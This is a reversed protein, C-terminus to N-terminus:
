ENALGAAGQKNSRRTLVVGAALQVASLRQGPDNITTALKMARAVDGRHAVQGTIQMLAFDRSGPPLAQAVRVAEDVEGPTGSWRTVTEQERSWQTLRADFEREFDIFTDRGYSTVQLADGWSFNAPPQARAVVGARTAFARAEAADGAQDSMRTLLNLARIKELGPYDRIAEITKLAGAKDGAKAQYEVLM